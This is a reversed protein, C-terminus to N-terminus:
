TGVEQGKPIELTLVIYALGLSKALALNESPLCPSGDFKKIVGERYTL